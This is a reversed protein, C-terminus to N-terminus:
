WPRWSRRDPHPHRHEAAARRSRARGRGRCVRPRPPAGDDLHAADDVRRPTPGAPTVPPTADRHSTPATTMPAPVTHAAVVQRAQVIYMVGAVWYLATGWWAFAWGIPLAWPPSPAPARASSCCRSPTSCTSPPPRASSTCRCAPRATASSGGCCGPSCCRAASWSRGGAVVPHHRALGARAADDRHLPPRRLPDLLQGLAPSWARVPARDQRRPLRQRGSLMLTVLAIVDHEALIAWLFIPCASWGCCRCCTPCPSCATPSPPSASSAEGSRRTSGRRCGLRWGSTSNAPM